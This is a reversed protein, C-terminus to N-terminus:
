EQLHKLIERYRSTALESPCGKRCMHLGALKRHPREVVVQGRSDLKSQLARLAELLRRDEKARDYFSLVYVYNFLNYRLFPYEV